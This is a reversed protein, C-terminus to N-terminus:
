IIFILKNVQITVKTKDFLCLDFSFKVTQIYSKSREKDNGMNQQWSNINASCHKQITISSEKGATGKLTRLQEEWM